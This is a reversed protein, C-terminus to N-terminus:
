VLEKRQSYMARSDWLHLCEDLLVEFPSFLMGHNILIIWLAHLKHSLELFQSTLLVPPKIRLLWLFFDNSRGNRKLIASCLLEYFVYDYNEKVLLRGVNVTINGNYNYLIYCYSIDVTFQLRDLLHNHVNHINWITEFVKYVKVLSLVFTLGCVHFLMQLKLFKCKKRVSQRLQTVKVSMGFINHCRPGFTQM